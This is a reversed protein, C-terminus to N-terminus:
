ALCVDIQIDKDNVPVIKKIDNGVGDRVTVSAQCPIYHCVMGNVSFIGNILKRTIIRTQRRQVIIETATKVKYRVFRGAVCQEVNLVSRNIGFDFIGRRCIDAGVCFDAVAKDRVVTHNEAFNIVGYQESANFHALPRNHSIGNQELVHKRTRVNM